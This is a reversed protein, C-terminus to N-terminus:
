TLTHTHTHTLCTTDLLDHEPATGTGPRNVADLRNARGTEGNTGM